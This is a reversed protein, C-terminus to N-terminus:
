THIWNTSQFRLPRQCNHKSAYRRRSIKCRPRTTAKSSFNNNNYSVWIPSSSFSSYSTLFCTESRGESSRRAKLCANSGTKPSRTSLRVRSSCANLMRQRSNPPKASKPNNLSRELLNQKKGQLNLNRGLYDGTRKKLQLMSLALKMDKKIVLARKLNFATLLKRVSFVLQLRQQRRLSLFQMKLSKLRQRNLGL